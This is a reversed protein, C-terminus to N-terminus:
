SQVAVGFAQAFGLTGAATVTLARSDEIPQV